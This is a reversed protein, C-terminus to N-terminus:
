RDLWRRFIRVAFPMAAYTMILVLIGVIVATSLMDPIGSKKLVPALVPPVFLVLPTLVLWTVFVMKLKGPAPRGIGPAEFWYELGCIEEFRSAEAILETLSKQFSDRIGSDMWAKLHRYTDFRYIVIYEGDSGAAPRIINVGLHGPFKLAESSIGAAWSEFEAELGPRVTHRVVLTVPEDPEIPVSPSVPTM